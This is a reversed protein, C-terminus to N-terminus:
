KPGDGAKGFGIKGLLADFASREDKNMRAGNPGTEYETRDEGDGRDARDLARVAQGLRWTVGEDALGAIDEMADEIERAHGRRANLKALEEALCLAATDPDPKRIAPSITVHRQGFLKELPGEGLEAVIAARLGPGQHRLIADRLALHAPDATELQELDSVFQPVVAPNAIM